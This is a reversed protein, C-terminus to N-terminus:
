GSGAREGAGAAMLEPGLTGADAIRGGVQLAALEGRFGGEVPVEVEDRLDLAAKLTRLSFRLNSPNRQIPSRSSIRRHQTQLM